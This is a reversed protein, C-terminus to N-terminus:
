TVTLSSKTSCKSWQLGLFFSSKASPRSSPEKYFPTSIFRNRLLFCTKANLPVVKWKGVLCWFRSHINEAFKRQKAPRKTFSASLEIVASVRASFHKRWLPVKGGATAIELLLVRPPYHILQPAFDVQYTSFSHWLGDLRYSSSSFLFCLEM